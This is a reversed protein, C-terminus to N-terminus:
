FIRLLNERFSYFHFVSEVSYVFDLRHIGLFFNPPTPTPYYHLVFSMIQM